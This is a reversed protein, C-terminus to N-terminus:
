SQTAAGNRLVRLFAQEEKRLGPPIDDKLVGEKACETVVRTIHGDLYHELIAPHVYCKRCVAPTNGLQSAVGKIAAVVNKKAQTESTFPEFEHLM